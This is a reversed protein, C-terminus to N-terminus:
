VLTSGVDFVFAVISPMCPTLRIRTSAAHLQQEDMTSCQNFPPSPQTYTETRTPTHTYTHIFTVFRWFLPQIEASRPVFAVRM